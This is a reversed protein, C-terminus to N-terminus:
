VLKYVVYQTSFIAFIVVVFIPAVSLYPDYVSSNKFILSFIFCVVTSVTDAIFLNIPLSFPLLSYTLIGVALCIAYIVSVIVFSLTRSSKVSIM